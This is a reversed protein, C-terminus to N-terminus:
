NKYHMKVHKIGAEMFVKGQEKFGLKSYYDKLYYQANMFISSSKKLKSYSILKSVIKKGYGRNRFKKLIAIRELKANRDKFTIRACGIPIDEILVIFHTSSKDHKDWEKSRPVKQGKIFVEERIKFVKQLEERAKAVKVKIKKMKEKHQLTKDHLVKLNATM